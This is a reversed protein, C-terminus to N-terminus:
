RRRIARVAARLPATIRWSSSMRLVEFEARLYANAEALAALEAMIPALEDMVPASEDMVPVPVTDPQRIKPPAQLLYEAAPQVHPRHDGFSRDLLERIHERAPKEARFRDLTRRADARAQPDRVAEISATVFHASPALRIYADLECGNRTAEALLPTAHMIHHFYRMEPAHPWDPHQPINVGIRARRLHDRRLFDPTQSTLAEVTLGQQRLSALREQRHETMTGTFLVDIDSKAPGDVEPATYGSVHRLEIRHVGAPSLLARYGELQKETVCWVARSRDAVRLFNRFRNDWYHRNDRQGSDSDGEAFRNFSHGTVFETAVVICDIGSAAARAVAEATADDFNEIFVNVCDRRLWEGYCAEHGAETIACRLFSLWHEINTPTAGHNGYVLNFRM